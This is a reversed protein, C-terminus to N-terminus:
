CSPPSLRYHETRLVGVRRWASSLLLPLLSGIGRGANAVSAVPPVRLAQGADRWVVDRCGVGEFGLAVRSGARNARVPTSPRVHPVWILARRNPHETAGASPPCDAYAGVVPLMSRECAKACEHGVAFNRARIQVTRPKSSSRPSITSRARSASSRSAPSPPIAASDSASTSRCRSTFDQFSRSKIVPACCHCFPEVPGSLLRPALVTGHAPITLQLDPRSALFQAAATRNVDLVARARSELQDISGLAIAGLREAIAPGTSGFLDQMRRIREALEPEALIWGCRLAGLGYAKALSSTVVFQEGLSLAHHQSEGWLAERYVEDVLVRAGANAAAEGIARLIPQAGSQEVALNHALNCVLSRVLSSSGPAPPITCIASPSSAPVRPSPAGSMRPILPSTIRLAGPFRRVVAGLLRATHLLPDYTPQEILVEDGPDFLAALALHNALSTGITPVVCAASVGARRALLEILLPDGYPAGASRELEELNIPLNRLSVASVASSTLDFPAAPSLKASHTYPSHILSRAAIHM